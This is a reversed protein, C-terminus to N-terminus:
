KSWKKWAKVIKKGELFILRHDKAYRIAKDKPLAKGDDGMIECGSGIPTLEAMKMMSIVLETHGKRADVLNKAAICIPVHGPSRFEKGFMNIAVGDNLTEVKKALEAFRKMTLSRDIDTIGTFTDRHNIYLSFSSKADYPIDNPVLKKLVPYKDDINSYMDALFPLKLKNAVENSIMLFILGGGDKRMTKISEPTVFESGIVLDTEAERSDDDYILIFKGKKLDAIAQEIKEIFEGLYLNM